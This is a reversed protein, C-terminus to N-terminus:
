EYRLARLPDITSARHAPLWVAILSVVTLLLPIVIFVMPDRAEVGFLLSAILRSMGFAAALGVIVGIVALRMGQFVVMSRVDRGGAGLAMRIGIEQTRQEVSYAMLGYVGIAALLLASGAFITMLLVNFRQRSISRLVVDEMSRVDSVPLGSAQRLQEQIAASLGYPAAQTRVVWAVARIGLNLANQADSVQANPIFMRPEPENNLGGDRSDGVVGVIERERENALEKMVGAGIMLREGIPNGDKWYQRAMAENILVVGPASMDDRDNFARGRKVPIKFVDFYNPSVNMWGGGGHFPTKDLPRGVIRFMLGYGGELPVCCTAAAREVGPIAELRETGDRVLRDFTETKQFQPGTLSMRLTLVNRPDLGPDVNRLAVLTRILLASGVLLLLALAVELIVLGSRAKNHRLVSGSRSTSDKLAANLDTRAGHLAPILGFLVGTAVSIVATFALVRWDIGVLAGGEGVRPLGATNVSLMARIGAVGVVLGVAGGAVSLLVSETLLQRVIRGRGAGIAARLAIERRRATARVLLLNAVNACAMLLVFAVAGGLVLLTPRANRVFVEDLRAVGFTENPQLANPFRARYEDASLKLRADAQELTVDPKLRALVSFFHGQDTSNPDLQFPVWVEPRVGFEGLDLPGTIGIVVHPEGSLSLTKGIIAPDSAFRRQWLGHSLVVVRPGGPRDEETSFSRGHAFPVRIVKFFDASVQGASLQEPFAGSTYNVVNFRYAGASEIVSTQQNWHAFKAPSAAPGSGQPSVNMFFVVREPEPFPVPKLLVANVVSFIATNAGIGLALAAVAALTFARQQSFM